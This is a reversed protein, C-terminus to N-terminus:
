LLWPEDIDTCEQFEDCFALRASAQLLVAITQHRHLTANGLGDRLNGVRYCSLRKTAEIRSLRPRSELLPVRRKTAPGTPAFPHNQTTRPLPLLAEEPARHFPPRKVPASSSAALPRQLSAVPPAFGGGKGLPRPLVVCMKGEARDGALRRHIPQYYWVTIGPHVSNPLPQTVSQISTTKM